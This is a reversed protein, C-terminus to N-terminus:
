KRSPLPRPEHEDGSIGVDEQIQRQFHFRDHLGDLGNALPQGIGSEDHRGRRKVLQGKGRARALRFADAFRGEARQRLQARPSELRQIEHRDPMADYFPNGSFDPVLIQQCRLFHIVREDDGFRGQEFAPHQQATIGVQAPDIELPQRQEQLIEVHGRRDDGRRALDHSLKEASATRKEAAPHDRNLPSVPKAPPPSLAALRSGGGLSAFTLEQM